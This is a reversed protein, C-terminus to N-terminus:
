SKFRVRESVFGTRVVAKKKPILLNRVSKPGGDTWATWAREIGQSSFFTLHSLISFLYPFLMTLMSLSATILDNGLHDTSLCTPPSRLDYALLM